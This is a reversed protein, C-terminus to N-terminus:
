RQPKICTTDVVADIINHNYFAIQLRGIDKSRYSYILRRRPMSIIATPKAEVVKSVFNKQIWIAKILGLINYKFFEAM